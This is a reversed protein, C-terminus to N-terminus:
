KLGGDRHLNSRLEEPVKRLMYQYNRVSTEPCGIRGVNLPRVQGKFVSVIPTEWCKHCLRVVFM